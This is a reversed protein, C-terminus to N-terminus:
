TGTLSTSPWQSSSIKRPKGKPWGGKKKPAVAAKIEAKHHQWYWDLWLCFMELELWHQRREKEFEHQRRVLEQLRDANPNELPFGWASLKIEESM